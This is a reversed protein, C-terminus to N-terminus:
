CLLATLTELGADHSDDGPLMPLLARLNLCHGQGGFAPAPFASADSGRSLGGPMGRIIGSSLIGLGGGIFGGGTGIFGAGVSHFGGGPTASAAAPFRIGFRRM